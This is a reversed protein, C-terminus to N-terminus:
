AGGEGRRSAGEGTLKRAAAQAAEYVARLPVGNSSALRACDEYEPARVVVESGLRGVKIRVPGFETEVVEHERELVHRDARRWRIGFTGTHTFILQELPRAKEPPALVSLLVGPRQKKMQIPVFFVDLAGEELLLGSLHGLIEGSTDDLNTELVVVEDALWAEEVEGVFLRLVNPYGSPDRSGAGYGVSEVTMKPFPGFREALTVLLAAGTPTLLEGETEVQRVAVGRILEATAPVPVPLRGHASEVWGTGETLTSCELRGVGLRELAVVTGVVDVIADVAGVEHFHVSEVNTGHVVAEAEALARFVRRSREKVPASLSSGDIITLIDALRRHPQEKETLDVYVKTARLGGRGVQESRLDYGALPLGALARRLEELPLGCDLCAGLLMDGSAGSFCDVYALRM